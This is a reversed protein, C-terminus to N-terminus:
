AQLLRGAHAAGLFAADPRTIALTAIPRLYEVFRGKSEFRARFPSKELVPLIRPVIGGALYVGGVAGYTLALNGAVGGLIACFRELTRLYATEGALAGRTIDEADTAPAGEGEIACLAEHLNCLGPGSLIREVSVHAHSRLLYRLIEIETEDDPAFSAHGGEAAVAVARGDDDVVLASAGFGTGPGMVATTRHPDAAGTGIQRVDAAGLLGTALATAVYDNIIRAAAFGMDTLDATSLSWNLNTFRVSGGNVPGAAAIVAVTPKETTEGLYAAITDRARAFEKSRYHRVNRIEPVPHVPDALALRVNTGGFDGVLVLPAPGDARTLDHM